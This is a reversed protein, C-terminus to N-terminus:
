LHIICCAASVPSARPMNCFITLILFAYNRLFPWSLILITKSLKKQPSLTATGVASSGHFIACKPGDIHFIYQYELLSLIEIISIMLTIKKERTFQPKIQKYEGLFLLIAAMLVVLFFVTGKM